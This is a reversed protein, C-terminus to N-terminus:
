RSESIRPWNYNVTFNIINDTIKEGGTYQAASHSYSSNTSWSETIEWALAPTITYYRGNIANSLAANGSAAQTKYASMNLSGNLTPSLKASYTGGFQDTQALVGYATPQLSRSLNTTLQSSEFTKQLTAAFLSGTNSSTSAIPVPFCSSFLPLCGLSNISSATKHIGGMLSLNLTESFDRSFGLQASTTTFRYQSATLSIPAQSQYDSYGLSFNLKNKETFAHTLTLSPDKQTYNLLVTSNITNGYSVGLYNYGLNLTDRETISYAWSPALTRSTRQAYSTVVGTQVLESEMTSDRLLNGNLLFQSREYQRTFTLNLLGYTQPQISQISYDLRSIQAQGTLSSQPSNASFMIQPAIKSIWTNGNPTATYFINDNVSSTASISPQVSWELASSEIPPLLFILGVLVAQSTNSLSKHASM